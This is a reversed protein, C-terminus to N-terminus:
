STESREADSRFIRFPLRAACPRVGLHPKLAREDPVPSTRYSLIVRDEAGEM